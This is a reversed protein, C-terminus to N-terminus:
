KPWGYTECHLNSIVKDLENNLINAVPEKLQKIVEDFLTALKGSLEISTEESAETVITFIADEVKALYEKKLEESSLHEISAYTGLDKKLANYDLVFDQDFHDSEIHRFEAKLMKKIPPITQYKEIKELCRIRVNREFFTDIISRLLGIKSITVVLEFNHCEYALHSIDHFLGACVYKSSMQAKLQDRDEEFINKVEELSM